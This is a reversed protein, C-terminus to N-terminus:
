YASHKCLHMVDTSVFKSVHTINVSHIRAANMGEKAAQLDPKIKSRHFQYKILYINLLPFFDIVLFHLDSCCIPM